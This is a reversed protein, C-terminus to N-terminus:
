LPTALYDDGHVLELSYGLSQIKAFSEERMQSSNEGLQLPREYNGQVEILMIPRCREITRRAGELVDSEMNEVDIKIFSVNTLNLDDLRIMSATNSGGTERIVYSGGENNPHSEVVQINTHEMGLACRIPLVNLCHNISLNLCLERYIKRNPEFSIVFGDPGVSHSMTVSHTGIHAGIDLAITGPKVFKQILIQIYEEWPNHSRLVDKITDHIEDIYFSGQSPINILTYKEFPFNILFNEDEFYIHQRENAQLYRSLYKFGRTNLNLAMQLTPDTAFLNTAFTLLLTFLLSALKVM